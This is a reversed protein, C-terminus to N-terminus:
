SLPRLAGAARNGPLAVVHPRGLRASLEALSNGLFRVGCIRQGSTQDTLVLRGDRIALGFGKEALGAMLATWSDAADFIPRLIARFLAATECDIQTEPPTNPSLPDTGNHIESFM